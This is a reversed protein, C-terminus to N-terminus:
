ARGEEENQNNIDKKDSDIYPDHKVMWGWFFYAFIFAFVAYCATIHYEFMKEELLWLFILVGMFISVPIRIWQTEPDIEFGDDGMVGDGRASIGLIYFCDQNDKNREQPGRLKIDNQIQIHKLFAMKGRQKDVLYFAKCPHEIGGFLCCALGRVFGANGATQYDANLEM